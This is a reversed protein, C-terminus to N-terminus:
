FVVIYFMRFGRRLNRCLIGAGAVLKKLAKSVAVTKAAAPFFRRGKMSGKRLSLLLHRRAKRDCIRKQLVTIQERWILLYLDETEMIYSFDSYPVTERDAIRMGEAGFYVEIPPIDVYWSLLTEASKDFRSYSKERKWWIAAGGIGTYFIWAIVYFPELPMLLGPFFLLIGAFWALCFIKDREAQCLRCNKRDMWLCICGFGTGGMGVALLEPSEPAMLGPILLFLGLFLFLFGEAIQMKRRKEGVAGSPKKREARADIWAWVKPLKKQSLRKSYAELARSAQPMLARVEYPSTQFWFM